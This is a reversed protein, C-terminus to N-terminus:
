RYKRRSHGNNKMKSTLKSVFTIRKILLQSIFIKDYKNMLAVELQNSLGQSKAVEIALEINGVQGSEVFEILSKIADDKSENIFEIFSKM